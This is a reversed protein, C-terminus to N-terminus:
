ATALRCRSHRSGTLTWRVGQVAGAGLALLLLAVALALLLLMRKMDRLRPRRAAAPM